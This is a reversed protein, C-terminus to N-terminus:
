RRAREGVPHPLPPIGGDGSRTASYLEMQLVSRACSPSVNSTRFRRQQENLAFMLRQQLSNTASSDLQGEGDGDTDTNLGGGGNDSTAIYSNRRRLRYSQSSSFRRSDHRTQHRGTEIEMIESETAAM